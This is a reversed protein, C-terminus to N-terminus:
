TFRGECRMVLAFGLVLGWVGVGLVLGWVGYMQSGGPTFVRSKTKHASASTSGFATARIPGDIVGQYSSAQTQQLLFHTHTHTHTFHSTHTYIHTHTHTHTHGEWM